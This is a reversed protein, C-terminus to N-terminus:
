QLYLDVTVEEVRTASPGGDLRLIVRGTGKNLLPKELHIMRTWRVHKGHRDAMPPTSRSRGFRREFSALRPRQGAAFRVTVSQTRAGGKHKQDSLLAEAFLPSHPAVQTFSGNPQPKRGFLAVLPAFPGNRQMQALATAVWRVDDARRPKVADPRAPAAGALAPLLVALSLSHRLLRPTPTRM